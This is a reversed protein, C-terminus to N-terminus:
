RERAQMNKAVVRGYKLSEDFLAELSELSCDGNVGNGSGLILRGSPRQYTDMMFRVESRVDEPTGWPIVQQVDFGAYFSIRDGFRQVIRREDMTYKQVPHLVDLGLDILGEMFPEINGCCHMWLHVGEAHATEALRAYCPKFFREFVEPSFMPGHQGGLDDSFFVGDVGGERAARVIIGVYFDTLANYLRSVEEPYLIFDLLANEMGRLMWHREFLCFWWVGLRYRGDPAVVDRLLYRSDSRPFLRLMDDLESWDPMVVVADHGVVATEEPADRTLWRYEPEDIPAEFIQPLRMHVPQIDCPYQRLMEEVASRRDGFEEPHVWFHINLPVRSAAGRGEIVSKVEDRTLHQEIM